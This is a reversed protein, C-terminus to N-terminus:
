NELGAVISPMRVKGTMHTSGEKRGLFLDSGGRLRRPM